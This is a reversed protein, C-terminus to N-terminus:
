RDTALLATRPVNVIEPDVTEPRPCPADTVSSIRFRDIVHEVSRRLLTLWRYFQQPRDSLCRTYTILIGLETRLDANGWGAAEELDTLALDRSGVAVLSRARGLYAEASEPDYRIAQSWSRIAETQRGIAALIRARELWPGPLRSTASAREFEDLAAEYRGRRALLIGHLERLGPDDADLELGRSVDALAREFQGARALVRARILLAQPSNPSLRLAETAAAKAQALSGVAADIVALSLLSRYALSPQTRAQNELVAIARNLDARLSAGGLPLRRIDDPRDFSVAEGRGAALLARQELRELSPRYELRQAQDIDVLAAEPRQALLRAMARSRLAQGLGKYSHGRAILVGLDAEATEAMGLRLELLARSMRAAENSPDLTLLEGYEAMARDTRGSEADLNARNLRAALGLKGAPDVKILADYQQRAAPYDGLEQYVLGLELRVQRAEARDRLKELAFQLDAIAEVRRNEIRRLRARNYRVYPSSENAAAAAEYDRLADSHRGTLDELFALYYRYWYNSEERTVARRLWAIAPEYAGERHCLMGWQFCGLASVDASSYPSPWSALRMSAVVTPRDQSIGNQGNEAEERRTELRTRLAKWPGKPEAFRIARDCIAVAKAAAEANPSDRLVTDIAMAWLFLLENIEHRLMAMRRDDLLETLYPLKSWDGSSKLVYFPKIKQQLEEFASSVDGGFGILRFRLRGAAEELEDASSCLQARREALMSKEAAMKKYDSLTPFGRFSFLTRRAKARLEDLNSWRSLDAIREWDSRHNLQAVGDFLIKAQDFKGAELQRTAEHYGNEALTLMDAEEVLAMLVVAGLAGATVMIALIAAAATALSRRHRRFWGGVRSSWPEKAFRLPADDAVAQLDAALDAASQYRDAPEPELCRRIVSDLAPPLERSAIAPRSLGEKREDAARLLADVVSTAKRPSPFPREGRIAEFLLVGLSYLDSRGDVQDPCGDALAELHEPSMYDITGGLTASAAASGEGPEPLPERALNFDLLMPMGDSTVLVNSPKIDRHLVGREHAHDLAEALRAGMWAIARVFTRGELASRGGSRKLHPSDSPELRDLSAVISAGQRNEPERCEALVRALTIRGFYPMCLLNLDTAPDVRHSYIPVIHTHQLRALTQPERSGRRSVKLAVPRDALQRDRALFVRAFAGRGLEEVLYFGAITQGVEPFPTADAAATPGGATLPFSTTASGVLGHIDFVRRLSVAVRPFRELYDNPNPNERAEERLCFEEYILAVLTDDGLDPFRDLYWQAGIPEGLEWHLSMDARLLALRVGPSEGAEALYSKLDPRSGGSETGRWSNEYGRALRVAVPSSAEEWTRGSFASASVSM